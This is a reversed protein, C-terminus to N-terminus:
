RRVRLRKAVVDFRGTDVKVRAVRPRARLRGEFRLRETHSGGAPIRYSRWTTQGLKRVGAYLDAGVDGACGTASEPPCTLRV